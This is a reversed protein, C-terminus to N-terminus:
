IRCLGSKKKIKQPPLHTREQIMKWISGGEKFSKIWDYVVLRCPGSEGYAQQLAKIIKVPKWNFRTLFKNNARIQFNTM